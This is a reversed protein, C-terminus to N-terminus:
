SEGKGKKRSLLMLVLCTLAAPLLLVLFDCPAFPMSPLPEFFAGSGLSFLNGDMLVLEGLYMAGTTLLAIISPIAVSLVRGKGFFVCGFYVGFTVGFVVFFGSTLLASLPSIQLTGNRYFATFCALICLGIFAAVCVTQAILPKKKAPDGERFMRTFGYILGTVTLVIVAAILYFHVKFAPNGAAYLPKGISELVEPTAACMSYQWASVPYHDAVDYLGAAVTVQELWLEGAAFVCVGLLSGIWLSHRKFLRYLLPFLLTVLLIGLCMPAYPIVYKPYDATQVEGYTFFSLLIKIGMYIPYASAALVIVLSVFYFATGKKKM